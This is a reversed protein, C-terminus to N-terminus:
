SRDSKLRQDAAREFAEPVGERGGGDDQRVVGGDALQVPVVALGILRGVHEGERERIRRRDAIGRAGDEEALDIDRELGGPRLRARGPSRKRALDRVKYDVPEEVEQPVVVSRGRLPAAHGGEFRSEEAREAPLNGRHSRPLM